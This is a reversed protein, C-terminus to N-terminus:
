GIEKQRLMSDGLKWTGGDWGPAVSSEGDQGPAAWTGGDWGIYLQRSGGDCGVQLVAPGPAMWRRKVQLVTLRGADWAHLRRAGDVEVKFKQDDETM